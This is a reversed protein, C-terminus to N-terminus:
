EITYSLEIHNNKLCQHLIAKEEDSLLELVRGILFVFYIKNKENPDKMFIQIQHYLAVSLAFDKQLIKDYLGNGGREPIDLDDILGQWNSDPKPQRSYIKQLINAGKPLISEINHFNEQNHFTKTYILGDLVYQVTLIDNM